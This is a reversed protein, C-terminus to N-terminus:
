AIRKGKKDYREFDRRMSIFNKKQDVCYTHNKKAYGAMWEDLDKDQQYSYAMMALLSPKNKEDRLKSDIRVTKDLLVDLSEQYLQMDERIMDTDAALAEAIFAELSEMCFSKEDMRFFDKMLLELMDMKAAIVAKDKTSKNKDIEDFLLGDTNRKTDRMKNKFEKLFRVFEVDEIGFETFREFLTLFLFSDKSNFIDKTEDTIIKELRHLNDSLKEFVGKTAHENLYKCAAKTQKKWASFYNSCMVTEVVVREVVGKRKESETFVSYDLFFRSCIIERIYSAFNEIYTFARQNANMATHNNYRKIYSSIMHNDCHEHIVTDIQYEDFKEKLEEPLKEYTTNKVDFVADEYTINGREDTTKKKYSILSNEISSTIKHCNERFKRLAATRCGGDVIHLRSDEEEGLIIPPIYDDTLVTVVLENIQENNWVFNRQVDANNDIDGKKNKKLYMDLSYTQKRPRAM